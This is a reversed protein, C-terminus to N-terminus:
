VCMKRNEKKGVIRNPQLGLFFIKLSHYQESRLILYYTAMKKGQMDINKRLCEKPYSKGFKLTYTFGTHMKNFHLIQFYTQPRLSLNQM